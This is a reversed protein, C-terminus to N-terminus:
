KRYSGGYRKKLASMTENIRGAEAYNGNAIAREMQRQLSALRIVLDHETTNVGGKKGTHETKGQIRAIYPLLEENFVDYCSPCGLLGTREYESFAMGCAPCVKQRRPAEGFLGNMVANAVEAEFGGFMEDACLACLHQECAKGNIIEVHNVTAERIKCNQCLM